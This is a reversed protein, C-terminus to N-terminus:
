LDRAGAVPRDSTTGCGPGCSVGPGVHGLALFGYRTPVVMLVAFLLGGVAYVWRNIPVVEAAPDADVESMATSPLGSM